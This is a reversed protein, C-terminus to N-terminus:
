SARTATRKDPLELTGERYSLLMEDVEAVTAGTVGWARQWLMTTWVFGAMISVDVAGRDGYRERVAEWSEDTMTGRVVRRAFDVVRRAEDGLETDHGHLLAEIADPSVGQALADLVHHHEIFGADVGFAHVVLEFDANTYTTSREPALRIQRGVENVAAGITPTQLMAAIYPSIGTDRRQAIRAILSDYAALESEAVASREPPVPLRGVIMGEADSIEVVQKTV